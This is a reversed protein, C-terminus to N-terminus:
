GKIPLDSFFPFIGTLTKVKDILTYEAETIEIQLQDKTHNKLKGQLTLLQNFELHTISGKDEALSLYRELRETGPRYLNRDHFGEERISKAVKQATKQYIAQGVPTSALHNSFGLTAISARLLTTRMGAGSVPDTTTEADGGLVFHTAGVQVHNKEARAIQSSATVTNQYSTTLSIDARAGKFFLKLLKYDTESLSNLFDDTEKLSQTFTEIEASADTPFAMKLQELAANPDKFLQARNEKAFLIKLGEQENNLKELLTDAWTDLTLKAESVKQELQKLRAEEEPSMTFYHYQTEPTSLLIEARGLLTVITSIVDPSIKGLKILIGIIKPILCIIFFIQKVWQFFTGKEVQYYAFAMRTTKSEKITDIGLLDRTKSNHGEMVYVIEYDKTEEISKISTNYKIVVGLSLAIETMAEEIDEIKVQLLFPDDIVKGKKKLLDIV